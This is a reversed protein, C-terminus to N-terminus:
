DKESVLEKEAGALWLERLTPMPVGRELEGIWYALGEPDPPRRLHAYYLEVIPHLPPELMAELLVKAAGDPWVPRISDADVGWEGPNWSAMVEDVSNGTAAAVDAVSVDRYGTRDKLEAAIRAREYELVPNTM